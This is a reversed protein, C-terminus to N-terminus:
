AKLQRVIDWDWVERDVIPEHHNSILLKSRQGTNKVQTGSFFDEVFTKQLMVDGVYKENALLKDLTAASWKSKGTPSHINRQELEASIKRLSHGDIRLRFILRVTEAESENVVLHGQEDHTYGYCTFHSTKSDIDRYSRQLGWKIDKSKSESESQAIATFIEMIFQSNQDLTHLGEAEFWINIGLAQLKRVAKLSDITNRGFRSGSKTLILDVKKKRCLEMLRVFNPRHKTNRGSGTDSFIGASIWDPRSDIMDAYYQMQSELSNEQEEADTSVRCYAAVRLPSSRLSKRIPIRETQKRM